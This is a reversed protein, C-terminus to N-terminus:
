LKRWFPEECKEIRAEIKKEFEGRREDRTEPNFKNRIEVSEYSGVDFVSIHMLPSYYDNRIGTLDKTLPRKSFIWHWDENEEEFTDYHFEPIETKSGYEDLLYFKRNLKGTTLKDKLILIGNSPIKYVRSKNEYEVAKGCSREFVVAIPKGALHDPIIFIEPEAKPLMLIFMSYSYVILAASLLMAFLKYRVSEKAILIYIGGVLLGLFPIGCLYLAGVNLYGVILSFLFILIIGTKFKESRKRYIEEIPNFM